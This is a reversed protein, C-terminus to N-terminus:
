RGKLPVSALGETSEPKPKHEGGTISRLKAVTETGQVTTSISQLLQLGVSQIREAIESSQEEIVTQPVQAYECYAVLDSPKAPLPKAPWVRTGEKTQSVLQVTLIPENNELRERFHANSDQRCKEDIGVAVVETFERSEGVLKEGIRKKADEVAPNTKNSWECEIIIPMRDGETIIIDPHESPKGQLTRTREGGNAQWNMGITNLWEAMITNATNEYLRGAPTTTM